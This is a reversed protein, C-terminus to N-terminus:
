LCESGNKPTDNADLKEALKVMMRRYDAEVYREIDMHRGMQAQLELLWRRYAEGYPNSWPWVYPWQYFRVRTLLKIELPYRTASVGLQKDLLSNIQRGSARRWIQSPEVTMEGAPNRIILRRVAMGEYRKVGHKRELPKWAVTTEHPLKFNAQEFNPDNQWIYNGL